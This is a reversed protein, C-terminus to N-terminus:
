IVPHLEVRRNMKRGEKSHNSAIPRTLGYGNLILRDKSIGKSEFYRAVARARRNSLGMNYSSSGISDTNGNLAMKLGPNRNMVAVVEDLMAHYQSKVITKDFDFHVNDLNWCGNDDVRAGLPTGPCRDRDDPVGDRDSDPVGAVPAPPPPAPAAKRPAEALFVRKVFLSMAASHNVDDANTYFGCGGADAIRKMRAVGDPDNGVAVTYICLREGYQKKMKQAAKTAQLDTARGDGIIIVAIQGIATKLDATGSGIANAMPTEGRPVTFSQLGGEFGNKSYGTMGYVLTTQTGHSGIDGGFKRLGGQLKLAPITKNMRNAFNRAIDFKTEGKYGEAMSGSSDLIVLFSDVKQVYEGTQLQSGLDTATFPKLPKATYCSVLFLSVGLILVIKLFGRAM